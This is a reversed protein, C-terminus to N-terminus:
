RIEMFGATECAEPMMRIDDYSTSDVPVFREVVAAGLRQRVAPDEHMAVALV